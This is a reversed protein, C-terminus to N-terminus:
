INTKPPSPAPSFQNAAQQNQKMWEARELAARDFEAVFDVISKAMWDVCAREAELARLVEPPSTFADVDHDRGRRLLEERWFDFLIPLEPMMLLKCIARHREEAEKSPPPFEQTDAHMPLDRGMLQAKFAAYYNEWSASTPTGTM